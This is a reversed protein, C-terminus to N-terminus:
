VPRRFHQWGPDGSWARGGVLVDPEAGEGTPLVVGVRVFDGPLSVGPPFCALLAHDEGGGLVWRLPDAGLLDSAAVLAADPALASPDLDLRVGSAAALRGSDRLLGDSTDIMATAGARAARPGAEYPPRPRLHDAVLPGAAADGERGAALLALGAASRGTRGALAVVDGARAGSRRVAPVGDLVGIATGTLVVQPAASLDGGVVTAGARACEDALGDALETVWSAPLDAPAALSVLLALPRAGMAVVDALNQAATKVGVDGGGSWVRRFDEGEVMTDTSVVIGGPPLDLVAADDGPPVRLWEPVPAPRALLAALLGDEGADGVTM